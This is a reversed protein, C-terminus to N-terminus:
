FTPLELSEWAQGSSSDAKLAGKPDEVSRLRVWVQGLELDVKGEM